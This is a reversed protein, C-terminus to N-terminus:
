FAPAINNNTSLFSLTRVALQLLSIHTLHRRSALRALRCTSPQHQRARCTYAAIIRLSVIIPCFCIESGTSTALNDNMYTLDVSVDSLDTAMSDDAIPSWKGALGMCYMRYAGIVEVIDGDSITVEGQIGFTLVPMQKPLNTRLGTRNAYRSVNMGRCCIEHCDPKWTTVKREQDVHFGEIREREHHV